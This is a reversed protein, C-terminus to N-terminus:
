QDVPLVDKIRRFAGEPITESAWEIEKLSAPELLAGFRMAQSAVVLTAAPKEEKVENVMLSRQHELYTRTAGVAVLGFVIAVAFMVVSSM